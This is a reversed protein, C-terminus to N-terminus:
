RKKFLGYMNRGPPASRKENSIEISTYHPRDTRNRAILAKVIELSFQGRNAMDTIEELAARNNFPIARYPRESLLADYIDCVAVIETVSDALSIGFPYGSADRREHHNLAVRATCHDADGLYYSLLTYGAISHQKLIAYERLTLPESKKLISLPVCTKGIDHSPGALFVEKQQAVEPILDEVLLTTLAFVVLLHRYTYFDHVRFYDISQLVPEILKLDEMFTNIRARAEATFIVDYPSVSLLKEIDDSVVDHYQFLSSKPEMSSRSEIIEFIADQSFMAGRPLLEVKELTHIPHILAIEGM